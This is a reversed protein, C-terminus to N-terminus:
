KQKEDVVLREYFSEYLSTIHGIEYNKAVRERAQHGLASLDGPPLRLLKVIHQALETMCSSPVIRGTEGVIEASDGVDTVVCPVGCAMAEGLVNPFAEGFSSSALVDLAAMLNQMDDRRGLLHVCEGLGHSSIAKQLACNSGDVGGGALVFHVGPIELRILAAAQIFGIHNKQPDYRAILGVLPTEPKLGLEERVALRAGADPQFRGIDFGNPIIQIKKPCYGEAVHVEAARASCSLIRAPLWCSIFSCARVVLLTSRKTLKEDLNSNRLGWVVYRCGALRATIGGLLDAHYMWTQILDPKIKRLHSVLILCKLPNPMEQSMNLALVPIGLAEIRPGIEGKLRLSIVQPDFRRRDIHQLLKLLMMEAGGTNLSTTIFVIKM